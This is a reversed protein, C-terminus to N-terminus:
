DSLTYGNERLILFAIDDWAQHTPASISRIKEDWLKKLSEDESRLFHPGMIRGAAKGDPNLILIRWCGYSRCM